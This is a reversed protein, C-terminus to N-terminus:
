GYIRVGTDAIEKEFTAYRKNRHFKGSHKVILDMPMRFSLDLANWISVETKLPNEDSDPVIIYIDLDSDERPTGNAYSGFLYIAETNPVVRLVTDKIANLKTQIDPTEYPRMNGVGNTILGMNM